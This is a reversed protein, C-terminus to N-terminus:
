IVRGYPVYIKLAQVEIADKDSSEWDAWDAPTWERQDEETFEDKGYKSILFPPHTGYGEPTQGKCMNTLFWSDFLIKLSYLKLWEDYDLSEPDLAMKISTLEGLMEPPLGNILFQAVAEHDANAADTEKDGSIHLGSFDRLTNGIYIIDTIQERYNEGAVRRLEADEEKTM